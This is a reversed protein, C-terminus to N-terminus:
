PTTYPIDDSTFQCQNGVKIIKWVRSSQNMNEVARNGNMDFLTNRINDITASDKLPKQWETPNLKNILNERKLANEEKSSLGANIFVLAADHSYALRWSRFLSKDVLNITLFNDVEKAFEQKYWPTVMKLNPISEDQCLNYKNLEFLVGGNYISESVIVQLNSRNLDKAIKLYSATRKREDVSLMLVLAQAKKLKDKVEEDNNQTSLIQALKVQNFESKFKELLEQAYPDSASYIVVVDLSYKKVSEVMEKAQEKVDRVIKYIFNSQRNGDRINASSTPSILLINNNQYTQAVEKTVLTQAHGIVGLLLKEKEYIDKIEQAVKDGGALLGNDDAVLLVLKNKISPNKNVKDQLIAAGTIIENGSHQQTLPDKLFPYVVRPVAVVVIYPKDPNSNAKAAKEALHKYVEANQMYVFSEIKLHYEGQKLKNIANKFHERAQEFYIAAQQYDNKQNCGNNFAQIGDRIEQQQSQHFDKDGISLHKQENLSPCLAVKPENHHFIQWIIIVVVFGVLIGRLFRVRRQVFRRVLRMVQRLLPEPPPPSPEIVIPGSAILEEWSPPTVSLTQYLMPIRKTGPLTAEQNELAERAQRFSKYLPQGEQAYQQFFNTFFEQAAQVSIEERMAIIIPINVGAEKLDRVLGLNDCCCLFLLKLGKGVAERLAEAFNDVTIESNGNYFIRGIEYNGTRGHGAFVLIECGQRLQSLLEKVSAPYEPIVQPISEITTRVTQQLDPINDVLAVIKVSGSPTVPNSDAGSHHLTSFAVEVGRARVSDLQLLDWEHWPLKWLQPDDTQIVVRIEDSTDMLQRLVNERIRAWYPDQHNTLTNRIGDRLLRSLIRCADVGSTNANNTPISEVVTIGDILPSVILSRYQEHWSQYTGFLPSLAPLTGQIPSM